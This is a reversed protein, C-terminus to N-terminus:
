RIVVFKRITTDGKQFLTEGSSEDFFDEIVVITALYIGSAILQRTSTVSDCTEDGSGDTHLITQILDGRETYINIKCQPPVNMFMIKNKEGPYQFNAAGIHFPNPVVRIDDLNEGAKRRLYAPTTTKTYVRSSQLPGKPNTLGSSNNSGDNFAVLYYYYSYGRIATM